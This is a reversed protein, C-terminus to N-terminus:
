WNLFCLNANKSRRSWFILDWNKIETEPSPRFEKGVRFKSWFEKDGLTLFLIWQQALIESFMGWIVLFQYFTVLNHNYAAFNLELRKNWQGKMWRKQCLCHCQVDHVSMAPWFLSKKYKGIKPAEFHWFNPVWGLFLWIM